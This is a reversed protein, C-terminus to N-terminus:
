KDANRQQFLTDSLGIVAKMQKRNDKMISEMTRRYTQLKERRLDRRPAREARDEHKEEKDVDLKMNELELPAM